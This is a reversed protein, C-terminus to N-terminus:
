PDNAEIKSKIVFTMYSASLGIYERLVMWNQKNSDFRHGRSLPFETKSQRKLNNLLMERVDYVKVACREQTLITKNEAV